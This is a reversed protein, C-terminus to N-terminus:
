NLVEKLKSSSKFKAANSAPIKITEGTKPNRGNRAKRKTVSFSGLGSIAINQDKKLGKTINIVLSGLVKDVSSKSIDTDSAINSLLEAKTLNNKMIRKNRIKHIKTILLFIFIEKLSM